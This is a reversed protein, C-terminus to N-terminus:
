GITVTVENSAVDSNPDYVRFKNDGERGTMVYTAFAGVRVQVQVGFDVWEGDEFRQVLLSMADRGPWQGTLNVREMPNVFVPSANLYLDSDSGDPIANTLTPSPEPEPTSEGDPDPLASSPLQPRPEVTGPGISVTDTTDLDLAKVLVWTGLGITLGIAVAVGVVKLVAAIIREQRDRDTQPESM